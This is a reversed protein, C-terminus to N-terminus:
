RPLLSASIMESSAADFVVRVNQGLCDANTWVELSRRGFFIYDRRTNVRVPDVWPWSRHTAIERAAEVAEEKTM